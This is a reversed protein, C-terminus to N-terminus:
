HSTDRLCDATIQGAAMNRGFNKLTRVNRYTMSSTLCQLLVFNVGVYRRLVCGVAFPDFHGDLLDDVSSM